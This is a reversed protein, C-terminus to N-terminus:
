FRPCVINHGSISTVKGRLELVDANNKRTLEQRKDRCLGASEAGKLVDDIPRQKPTRPCRGQQVRSFSWPKEVNARNLFDPTSDSHLLTKAPQQQEEIKLFSVLRSRQEPPRCRRLNQLNSIEQHNRSLWLQQACCENQPSPIFAAAHEGLCSSLRTELSVSVDNHATLNAV